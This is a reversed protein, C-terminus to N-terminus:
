VSGRKKWFPRLTLYAALYCLAGLWLVGRFGIVMALMVALLPALVSFCGNISWVWPILTEDREGLERLGMPFPLGMLFGLPLLV